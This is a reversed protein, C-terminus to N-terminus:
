RPLGLLREGVINRQIQATGGYISSARSYLYREVWAVVAADHSDYAIGGMGLIEMAVSFITQEVQGLFLKTLASDAGIEEGRRLTAVVDAIRLDLLEMAITAEAVRQRALPDATGTALRQLGTMAGRLVASRRIAYPGREATLMVQAVQWGGGLEGLLATDPLEVNDFFVEAFEASGTMTTLPRVDIGPTAMDIVFATIGRHRDEATGTRALLLGWTAFQAWTSWVKQGNITWGADTKEARTRLSALDSGADPESFLQCWIEEASAMLPLWTALQEADAYALLAPAIVDIGVFNIVEPAEARGLEDCVIAYELPSMGRGGYETPWAVAALGADHLRHEFDVLYKFQEDVSHHLPEPELQSTFARVEERFQQQDENLSLRM